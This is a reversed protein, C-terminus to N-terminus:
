APQKLPISSTRRRYEAKSKLIQHFENLRNLGETRFRDSLVLDGNAAESYIGAEALYRDIRQLHQQAESIFGAAVDSWGSAQSTYTSLNSLRIGAEQIYAMAAAIRANAIDVRARSFDAYNEAVRSGLNVVNIKDDGAETYAEAGVNAKGLDTTAVANLYTHANTLSDVMADRLEAIDTTLKTLWYQTNQNTNTELYTIVKGIATAFSTHVATIYGLETRLSALDTVAQQEYQQAEILLAYGGAGIAIVEDLVSPYSAPSGEGPPFHMREYYIALHETTTSMEEQSKGTVKSAIYMFDGFMNFAVFQQPVQDVPYEVRQIRTVVPLLSGINIGLRSKTYSILYAIGAAMGGIYITSTAIHTAATTGAYGRTVTLTVTTVATVLMVESDIRIKTGIPLKTSADASCTVSTGDTTTIVSATLGSDESIFKIAGNIFDMRYDTDRVLTIATGTANTVVESEPRIPKNAIFIFSDYANGTGISITDGAAASGAINNVEVETIRKFYLKGQYAVATVRLDKLYWSEEIYNGDQDYGKVIITLATVSYDADTLTVTLRRPVEPTYDTITLLDGNALLNLTIAGTIATASAAAPMTISEDTVTFSLTEEYIKELPMYRSLDNVAKQICRNLEGDAWITGPDKLDIRLLTRFQPLTLGQM